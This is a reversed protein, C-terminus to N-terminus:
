LDLYRLLAERENEVREDMVADLLRRLTEGVARGRLGLATLDDGKVALDKLSFCQAEASLRRIAAEVEDFEGYRYSYDPHLGATDARHVDVLQLAAEEGFRNMLRRVGKDETPLPTDHHKVLLLVRDRTANDFRLRSLIEAALEASKSAHGYFHGVGDGDLAFCTPKGVDHLLATWRLVPVAPAAGVVAATHAWVTRDHHPNHQAFGFMPELEPIVAALVDGFKLLVREAYEGCLIGDLETKIREPAVARLLERQGHIAAATSEEVELGFRSAFRLARLIRLADERFRREPEGVCRLLNRELDGRGGLPDVLGTRPNYAMANVTFDRRELDDRLSRTFRVADPHRHDTYDGDVRYTTIEIPERDLLVTVTGHRLGTEVLREGGFVAKVQEPLANTTVDWDKVTNDGRVFDRVAGGVVYAEYGAAELRALVTNVQEPLHFM